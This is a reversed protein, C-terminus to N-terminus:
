TGGVGGIEEETNFSDPRSFSGTLRCPRRLPLAAESRVESEMTSGTPSGAAPGSCTPRGRPGPRDPAGRDPAPPVADLADGRVHLLARARQLEAELASQWTERACGPRTAASRPCGSAPSSRRARSGASAAASSSRTGTPSAQARGLAERSRRRTSSRIAGRPPSRRVDVLTECARKSAADRRAGRAAPHRPRDHVADCLITAEM